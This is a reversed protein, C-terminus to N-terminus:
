GKKQDPKRAPTSWSPKGRMEPDMQRVVVGMIIEQTEFLNRCQENRCWRIRTVTKPLKDTEVVRSDTGCNPCQM